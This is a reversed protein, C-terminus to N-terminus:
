CGGRASFECFIVVRYGGHGFLSASQEDNVQLHAMKKVVTVVAFVSYLLKQQQPPM